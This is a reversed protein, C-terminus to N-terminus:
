QSFIYEKAFAKVAFQKMTEKNEVLYVWAFSGKGIMKIANFKEHFNSQIFVKSFADSWIKFKEKGSIIFDCYKLNKIFRVQFDYLAQSPDGISTYETRMYKTPMKGRIKMTKKSKLYYLFENTLIFYRVKNEKEKHKKPKSMEDQYIIVEQNIQEDHSCKTWLKFGPLQEDFISEIFETM